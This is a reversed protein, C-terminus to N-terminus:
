PKRNQHLRSVLAKTIGSMAGFCGLAVSSGSLDITDSERDWSIGDFPMLAEFATRQRRFDARRGRFKHAASDRVHKYAYLKQREQETLWDNVDKPVHSEWMAFLYIVLAGEVLSRVGSRIEATEKPHKPYHVNNAIVSAGSLVHGFERQLSGGQIQLLALVREFDPHPNM